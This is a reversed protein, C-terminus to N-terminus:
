WFSSSRYSNLYDKMILHYVVVKSESILDRMNKIYGCYKIIGNREWENIQKESICDPNEKDLMGAVLFTFGSSKM